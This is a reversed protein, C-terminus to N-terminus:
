SEIDCQFSEYKNYVDELSPIEINQGQGILKYNVFNHVTYVWLILKDRSGLFYDIPLIRIYKTYSERCKGCPLLVDMSNYFNKAKMKDEDNPIKPYRQAISHLFVWGSPGWKKTSLGKEM